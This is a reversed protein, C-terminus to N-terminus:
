KCVKDGANFGTIGQFSESGSIQGSIVGGKEKMIRTNRTAVMKHDSNINIVKLLLNSERSGNKLTGKKGHFAGGILTSM